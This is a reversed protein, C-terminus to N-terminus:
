LPNIEFDIIFISCITSKLSFNLFNIIFKRTRVEVEGEKIFYLFTSEDNEKYLVDNNQFENKQFCKVFTSLKARPWHSFIEFKAFFDTTERLEKSHNMMMIKKYNKKNVRLFHCNEKCVCIENRKGNSILAIEGFSEGAAIEQAIYYEPYKFNIIKHVRQTSNEIKSPSRREAEQSMAEFGSQKSLISHRQPFNSRSEISIRGSEESFFKNIPSKYPSHSKNRPSQSSNETKPSRNELNKELKGLKEITEQYESPMLGSKSILILVAGALIIYLYDGEAGNEYLTSGASLYFYEFYESFGQILAASTKDDFKSFFPFLKLTQKLLFEEQLTKNSKKIIFLFMKLHSKNTLDLSDKSSFDQPKLCSRKFLILTKSLAGLSMPLPKDLLPIKQLSSM